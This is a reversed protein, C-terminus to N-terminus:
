VRPIPAPESNEESNLFGSDVVADDVSYFGGCSDDEVEHKHGMSCTNVSYTRFGYVDNNMYQTLTKVESRLVEKLKETTPKDDGFIEKISEKTAYICGILSTDWGQQDMWIDDRDTTLFLGSHDYLWLPLHVVANNLVDKDYKEDGIGHEETGACAMIGMNTWERPSLSDDDVGIDLFKNGNQLRKVVGAPLESEPTEIVDDNDPTKNIM